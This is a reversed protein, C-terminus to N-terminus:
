IVHRGPGLDPAVLRQFPPGVDAANSVVQALALVDAANAALEIKAVTRCREPAARRWTCRVSERAEKEIDRVAVRAVQRHVEGSITLPLRKEVALVLPLHSRLQCEIEAQAPFPIWGCSRM